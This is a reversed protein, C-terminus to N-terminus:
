KECRSGGELLEKLIIKARQARKRANEVSISLLHATEDYSYGYLYHIYLVDRYVEPLQLMCDSLHTLSINEFIDNTTFESNVTLKEYLDKNKNEKKIMNIAVNRTIIVVFSRTKPCNIENIKHFNKAIRIFAEQVADESLQNDNLVENAIYLMLKRYEEYLKIFKVKDLEDDILALYLSLM